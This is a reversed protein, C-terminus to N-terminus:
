LFHTKFEYAGRVVAAATPIIPRFRTAGAQILAQRLDGKEDWKMQIFSVLLISKRIVIIAFPAAKM